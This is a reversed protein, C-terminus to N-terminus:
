SDIIPCMDSTILNWPRWLLCSRWSLNRAQIKHFLVRRRCFLCLPQSCPWEDSSRSSRFRSAEVHHVLVLFRVTIFLLSPGRRIIFSFSNGWCSDTCKDYLKSLHTSIFHKYQLLVSDCLLIPSGRISFRHVPPSQHSQLVLSIAAVTPTKGALFRGHRGQM